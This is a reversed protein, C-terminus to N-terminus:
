VSMSKGRSSHKKQSVLLLFKKLDQMYPKSFEPLLHKKWTSELQIDVGEQDSLEPKLELGLCSEPMNFM